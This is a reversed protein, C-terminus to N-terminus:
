ARRPRRGPKPRELRLVKAGQEDDAMADRNKAKGLRLLLETLKDPDEAASLVLAAVLDKRYVRLGGSTALTVLRDLRHSIQIPLSVGVQREEAEHLAEDPNIEDHKTM